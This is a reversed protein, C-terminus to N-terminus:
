HTENNWGRGEIPVLSDRLISIMKVDGTKKNYSLVILADSRGRERTVDRSDTGMVLINEINPDKKEVKYIPTKGYVSKVNENRGFSANRDFGDGKIKHRIILFLNSLISGSTVGLVAGAAAFPLVVGNKATEDIVKVGFVEAFRNGSALM